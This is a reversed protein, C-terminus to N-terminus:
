ATRFEEHARLRQRLARVLRVIRKSVTNASDHLGLLTVLQGPTLNEAFRLELLEREETKLRALEVELIAARRARRLQSSPTAPRRHDDASRVLLEQLRGSTSPLRLLPHRRLRRRRDAMRRRALAFLWTRPAAEFRYRPLAQRVAMWVEQCVDDASGDPDLFRVFRAVDEAHARYLLETAASLGGAQILERLTAVQQDQM